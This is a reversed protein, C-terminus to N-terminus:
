HGTWHNYIVQCLLYLFKFEIYLKTMFFFGTFQRENSKLHIKTSILCKGYM